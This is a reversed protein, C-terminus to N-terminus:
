AVIKLNGNIRRNLEIKSDLTRLIDSVYIQYKIDPLCVNQEALTHVSIGPQASQASLTGLHMLSLLSTLFYTDALENGIVVIAHETIYAEGNFFRTNGCYAGQRGIIGCSGVFNSYETYGRIGNGGIVPYTGKKTVYESKISRGSKLRSCVEKLKYEKWRAM